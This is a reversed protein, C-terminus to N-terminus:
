GHILREQNEIQVFASYFKLGDSLRVGFVCGGRLLGGTTYGDPRPTEIVVSVNATENQPIAIPLQGNFLRPEHEYANREVRHRLRGWRKAAHMSVSVLEVAHESRNRVPFTILRNPGM